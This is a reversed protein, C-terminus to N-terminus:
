GPRLFAGSPSGCLIFSRYDSVIQTQVRDVLGPLVPALCAPPSECERQLPVGAHRKVGAICSVVRPEALAGATCSGAPAAGRLERRRCAVVCRGTAVATKGLVRAAAARCRGVVADGAGAGGCLLDAAFGNVVAGTAALAGTGFVDCDGGYCEPCDRACAADIRAKAGGGAGEVLKRTAGAFPRACDTAPVRGARAKRDCRAIDATERAGLRDTEPGLVLQCRSEDPTLTAASAVGVLTVLLAALVRVALSAAEDRPGGEVSM